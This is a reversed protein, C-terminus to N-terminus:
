YAYDAWGDSTVRATQGENELRQQATRFDREEVATRGDRIAVMGAETVLSELDAGTFDETRSAIASLDVTDALTMGRTHIKLIEERGDREPTKVEIIRDFRGPRLIARDLMDYRNTAGIIRIEGRTDFGDMESLLQMM